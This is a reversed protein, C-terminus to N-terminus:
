RGLSAYARDLGHRLAIFIQDLEDDTTIFPPMLGVTDAGLDRLIVGKDGAHRAVLADIGHDEPFFARSAKDATLQIGAGLGAGRIEGVLPHERLADLQQWFRPALQDRVRELLGEREIIEINKLAAAAGVPHCSCTYGHYLEEPHDSIATGVRTNLAVASVPFYASSIGKAMVTIDAEFGFYQQGFWQGTRGFGTVVEDAILLVDYQDCIRRIEAWYNAPPTICAGTAQIPEGIFAGVQDPGLRLIEEELARAAHLGFDEDDQEAGHVWSWPAMIHSVGAIPLGFQPHCPELGTLSATLLNMGHYAMARSVVHQKEPKGQLKWYWRVLKIATDNAESGSNAFFFHAMNAPTVQELKEVLAASYPNACEWFVPHFSLTRVADAITLAMEERGYGINVCGLGSVADISRRGESDVQYVGEAREVVRRFDGRRVAAPYSFPHIHHAQDAALASHSLKM